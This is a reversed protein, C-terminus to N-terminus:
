KKTKSTTTEPTGATSSTSSTATPAPEQSGAEAPKASEEVAQAAKHQLLLSADEHSLHLESGAVHSRRGDFFRTLLKYKGALNTSM